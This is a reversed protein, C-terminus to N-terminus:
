FNFTTTGASTVVDVELINNIDCDSSFYLTQEEGYKLTSFGDTRIPSCQPSSNRNIIINFITIDTDNMSVVSMVPVNVNDYTVPQQELSIAFELEHNYNVEDTMGLPNGTEWSEEILEDIGTYDNYRMAVPEYPKSIHSTDSGGGSAAIQELYIDTCVHNSGNYMEAFEQEILDSPNTSGSISGRQVRANLLCSDLETSLSTEEVPDKGFNCGITLFSLM